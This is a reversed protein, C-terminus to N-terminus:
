GGVLPTLRLFTVKSGPQFTLKEDLKNMRQGDVILLYSRRIFAEQATKVAVEINVQEEREARDSPMHIAGQQTQERVNEESLYYRNLMRKAAQAQLKREALVRVQEKVTREILESVALVESGIQVHVVPMSADAYVGPMLRTSVEVTTM